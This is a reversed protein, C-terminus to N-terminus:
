RYNVKHQRRGYIKLLFTVYSNRLSIEPDYNIKEKDAKYSGEVLTTNLGYRVGFIIGGSHSSFSVHYDLEGGFTFRLMSKEIDIDDVDNPIEFLSSYTNGGSDNRKYQLATFQHNLGVFPFLNVRPTNLLDFGFVYNFLNIGSVKVEEHNESKMKKGFLINFTFEHIFRKRKFTVGYGFGSAGSGVENFGHAILDDLLKEYEAEVYELTLTLATYSVTDTNIHHFLMELSDMKHAYYISDIHAREKQILILLSDTQAKGTKANKFNYDKNPHQAPLSLAPIILVLLLLYKIM